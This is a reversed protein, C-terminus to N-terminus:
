SKQNLNLHNLNQQSLIQSMEVINIHVELIKPYNDSYETLNYMPIVVDLDKANDVQSNNIETICDTFPTCNKFVAQKIKRDSAIAADDAVSGHVTITGSVLIYADSYVSLSLNLRSTEFKIQSNTNYAGCM